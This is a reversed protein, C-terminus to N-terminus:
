KNEKPLSEFYGGVFRLEAEIETKPYFPIHIGVDAGSKASEADQSVSSPKTIERGDPLRCTYLRAGQYNEWLDGCRFSQNLSAKNLISLTPSQASGNSEEFPRCIETNKFTLIVRTPSLLKPDFATVPCTVGNSFQFKIGAIVENLDDQTISREVLEVRPHSYSFTTIRQWEDKYDNVACMADNKNFCEWAFNPDTPPSADMRYPLAPIAPAILRDSVRRQDCVQSYSRCVRTTHTCVECGMGGFHGGRIGCDSPDFPAITWVDCGQDWGGTCESRCNYNETDTNTCKWSGALCQSYSSTCVQNSINHVIPDAFEFQSQKLSKLTFEVIDGDAVTRLTDNVTAETPPKLFDTSDSKLLVPSREGLSDSLLNDSVYSVAPGFYEEDVLSIKVVPGRHVPQGFCVAWANPCNPAVSENFFETVLKSRLPALLSEPISESVSAQFSDVANGVIFAVQESSLSPVRAPTNKRVLDYFSDGNLNLTAFLTTIPARFNFHSSVTARGGAAFGERFRQYEDRKFRVKTPIYVGGPCSKLATLFAVTFTGIEQDKIEVHKPCQTNTIFNPEGGLIARLGMRLKGIKVDDFGQLPDVLEFSTNVEISNDGVALTSTRHEELASRFVVRPAVLVSRPLEYGEILYADIGFEEQLNLPTIRKSEVDARRKELYAGTISYLDMSGYESRIESRQYLVDGDAAGKPTGLQPPFSTITEAVLASTGTCASLGLFVCFGVSRAIRIVVHLNPFADLGNM